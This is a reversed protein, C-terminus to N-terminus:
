DDKAKKANLWGVTYFVLFFPIFWLSFNLLANVYDNLSGNYAYLWGIVGFVWMTILQGQSVNYFNKM